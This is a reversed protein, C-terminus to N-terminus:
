RLAPTEGAGNATGAFFIATKRTASVRESRLRSARAVKNQLIFM